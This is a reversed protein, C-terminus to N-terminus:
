RERRIEVGTARAREKALPTMVVREGIVITRGDRAAAIVHRETVVGRLIREVGGAENGSPATDASKRQRAQDALVFRTRGSEIARRRQPDTADTLLRAVAADLDAQSAIVVTQPSPVTRSTKGATAMVEDAVVETLVERIVSRLLDHPVQQRGSGESM